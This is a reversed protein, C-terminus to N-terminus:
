INLIRALICVALNYGGRRRGVIKEFLLPAELRIQTKLPIDLNEFPVTFLHQRQLSRLVAASPERRGHYQIRRLYAELDM